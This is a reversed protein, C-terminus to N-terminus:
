ETSSTKCPQNSAAGGSHHGEKPILGEPTRSTGAHTHPGLGNGNVLQVGGRQHFGQLEHHFRFHLSCSLFPTLADLMYADRGAHMKDNLSVM